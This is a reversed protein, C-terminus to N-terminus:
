EVELVTTDTCTQWRVERVHVRSELETGENEAARLPSERLGSAGEEEGIGLGDFVRVAAERQSGGVERQDIGVGSGGGDEARPPVRLDGAADVLPMRHQHIVRFTSFTACPWHTVGRHEM